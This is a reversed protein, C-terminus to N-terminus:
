EEEDEEEECAPATFGIQRKPPINEEEASSIAQKMKINSNTIKENSKTKLAELWVAVVGMLADLLPIIIEVFIIGLIFYLLEM